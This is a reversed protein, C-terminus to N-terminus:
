GTLIGGVLAGVDPCVFQTVGDFSPKYGTWSIWSVGVSVTYAIKVTGGGGNACKGVLVTLAPDAAVNTVPSVANYVVAVPLRFKTTAGSGNFTVGGSSGSALTNPVRVGADTLLAGSFDANSVTISIYSDSKVSVDVALNIKLQFPATPSASTPTGSVSYPSASTPDLYPESVQVSSIRPWLFYIAVGIGALLVVIIASITWCCGRRTKFCCCHRVGSNRQQEREKRRREERTIREGGNVEDAAMLPSPGVANNSNRSLSPSQTGYQTGGGGSGNGTSLLKGSVSDDSLSQRAAVAAPVYSVRKAGPPLRAYYADEESLVKEKSSQASSSVHKVSPVSVRKAGPPLKAMYADEEPNSPNSASSPTYSMPPVVIPTYSHYSSSPVYSQQQQYALQHNPHLPMVPANPISQSYHMPYSPYVNPLQPPPNFQQKQHSFPDTSASAPSDALLYKQDEKTAVNLLEISDDSLHVVTSKLTDSEKIGLPANSSQVLANIKNEENFRDITSKDQPELQPTQPAAYSPLAEQETSTSSAAIRENLVEDLKNQKQPLETNTNSSSSSASSPPLWSSGKEPHHWFVRQYTTDFHQTWGNDITDDNLITQQPPPPPPSSM